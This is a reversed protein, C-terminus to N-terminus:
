EEEQYATQKYEQRLQKLIKTLEKDTLKNLEIDFKSNESSDLGSHSIEIKFKTYGNYRITLESHIKENKLSFVCEVDNAYQSVKTDILKNECEKQFRFFIPTIVNKLKNNFLIKFLKYNKQTMTADDNELWEETTLLNSKLSVCLEDNQIASELSDLTNKDLEDFPMNGIHSMGSHIQFDEGMKDQFKKIVAKAGDFDLNPFILYFKGGRAVAVIDEGRVFAKIVGALRNTSIKTKTKDDLTVISFIGNQIKLDVSLDIFIEKLSSYKYLGTKEDIVGLQDLFKENRKSIEKITHAKLCNITKILIEYDPSSKLIYDYIGCDYAKLVFESNLEDLLLIIEVDNKMEKITSILRLTAVNSGENEHLIVVSCLSNELQKKLNKSNCVTIGDNERLLVLKELVLKAIDEYDTVLLINNNDVM